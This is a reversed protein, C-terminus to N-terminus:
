RVGQSLANVAQLDKQMFSINMPREGSLSRAMTLETARKKIEAQLREMEAQLESQTRPPARKIARSLRNVSLFLWACMLLLGLLAVALESQGL